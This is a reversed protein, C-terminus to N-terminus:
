KLPCTRKSLNIRWKTKPNRFSNETHFGHEKDPIVPLCECITPIMPNQGSIMRICERFPPCNCWIDKLVGFMFSNYTSDGPLREGDGEGFAQALERRKLKYKIRFADVFSRLLARNKFSINENQGIGENITYFIPDRPLVGSGPAGMKM